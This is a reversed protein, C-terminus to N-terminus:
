ITAPSTTLCLSLSEYIERSERIIDAVKDGISVGVTITSKGFGEMLFESYDIESYHFEVPVPDRYFTQLISMHALM